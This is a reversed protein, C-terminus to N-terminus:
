KQSVEGVYFLHQAAGTAPDYALMNYGVGAERCIIEWVKSTTLSYIPSVSVGGKVMHRVAPCYDIDIWLEGERASSLSLADPAEEADYVRVFEAAVASLGENKIAKILPGYFRLTFDEFYENVGAAGYEDLIYGLGLNMHNHFDRHLYKNDAARREMKEVAM